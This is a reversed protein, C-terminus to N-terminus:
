WEHRCHSCVWRTDSVCCGRHDVWPPQDFPTVPMGFAMRKSRRRGCQPCQPHRFYKFDLFSQFAGAQMADRCAPCLAAPWDNSSEEVTWVTVSERADPGTLPLAAGCGTCSGGSELLVRAAALPTTGFRDDREARFRQAKVASVVDTAATGDLTGQHLEIGVQTVPVADTFMWKRRLRGIASGVDLDSGIQGVETLVLMPATDFVVVFRDNERAEAVQSWPRYPSRPELHRIVADKWPSGVVVHVRGSV